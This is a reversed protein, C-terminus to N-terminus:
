AAGGTTADEIVTAEGDFCGLPRITLAGADRLRCVRDLVQTFARLHEDHRHAFDHPHFWLDVHASGRAARDLTRIAKTTLWAPPVMGRLGRARSPCFFPVNYGRVGSPTGESWARAPLNLAVDCQMLVKSLHSEGRGYWYRGSPRYRIFGASRASETHRVHNKPFVFATTPSGAERLGEAAATFECEIDAATWEPDTFDIHTYSHSAIEMHRARSVVELLDPVLLLHEPVVKWAQDVRSLLRPSGAVRSRVAERDSEVLAGVIAWTMGIERVDAISVLEKVIAPTREFQDFYEWPRREGVRGWALETDLSITLTAPM